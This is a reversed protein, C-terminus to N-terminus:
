TFTVTSTENEWAVNKLSYIVSGNKKYINKLNCKM